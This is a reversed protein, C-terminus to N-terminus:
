AVTYLVTITVSGATLEDLGGANDPDFNAVLQKSGAPGGMATGPTGRYEAAADGLIDVAETVGDTDGSFGVKMTLTAVGAGVFPTTIEYKSALLMAGAPLATGVNIDEDAGDATATFDDFAVTVTKKYIATAELADLRADDDSSNGPFGLEVLWLSTSEKMVFLVPGADAVEAGSSSSVANTTFKGRHTSTTSSHKVNAEVLAEPESSSSVEAWVRGRRVVPVMDGEKYLFGDAPIAAQQNTPSFASVGVPKAFSTDQPLELAGDSNLVVLRGPPIDEAAPYSVVFNDMEESILGPVAKARSRNYTTQSM